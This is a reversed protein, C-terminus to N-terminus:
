VTDQGLYSKFLKRFKDGVCVLKYGYACGVNKSIKLIVNKLIKNEIIKQYKFVKLILM